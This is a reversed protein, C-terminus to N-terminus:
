TYHNIELAPYIRRTYTAFPNIICCRFIHSHRLCYYALVEESPWVGIIMCLLMSSSDYFQESTQKLAFVVESLRLCMECM